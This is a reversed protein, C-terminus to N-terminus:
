DVCTTNCEAQMAGEKDRCGEMCARQNRGIAIMNQQLMMQFMRIPRQCSTFCDEFGHYDVVDGMTWTKAVVARPDPIYDKSTPAPSGKRDLDLGLRAAIAEAQSKMPDCQRMM